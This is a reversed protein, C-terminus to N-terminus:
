RKGGLFDPTAIAKSTGSAELAAASLFWQSLDTPAAQASNLAIVFLAVILACTALRHM